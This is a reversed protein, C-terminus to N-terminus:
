PQSRMDRIADLIRQSEANFQQIAREHLKDAQAKKALLRTVFASHQSCLYVTEGELFVSQKALYQCRLLKLGRHVSFECKGLDNM